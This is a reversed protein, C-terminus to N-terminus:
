KLYKAIMMISATDWSYNGIKNTIMRTADHLPYWSKKKSEGMNYGDKLFSRISQFKHYKKQCTNIKDIALKFPNNADLSKYEKHKVIEEIESKKYRFAVALDDEDYSLDINDKIFQHLEVAGVLRKVNQEAVMVVDDKDIDMFNLLRTLNSKCTIVSEFGKFDLAFEWNDKSKVLYFKPYSVNPDKPDINVSEWVKKGEEGIEYVNFTGKDIRNVVGGSRTKRNVVVKPLSSVPEFASAPFGSAIMNDYAGKHFLSIRVDDNDRCFARVRTIGGKGLDDYMWKSKIDLAPQSSESIKTRHWGQKYYTTGWMAVGNSQSAKKILDHPHSIDWNKWKVNKDLSLGSVYSYKNQLVYMARIAEFINPKNALTDTVRKVFDQKVFAFKDNLAKITAPHYSLSERSPTFDLEGMAFNVVLGGKMAMDRNEHNIKNIDIPYTVGGMIAYCDGYGFKDYSRWGDGQFVPTEITWDVKGGVIEPKNDFFRFSKKVAEAFKNFDEPKVPIQISVGSPENTPSGGMHTIAPTSQENFHANYTNMVGDKVSTIMFSDAYCFPSKSGLGLCGIQDNTETKTSEFYVAYIGYINEHSIGTGFDQITLWPELTNPLHIRFPNKNGAAVHSDMANCGLERVIALPKDSYLDSLIQFAKRSSKMRFTEAHSVNGIKEITTTHEILKM